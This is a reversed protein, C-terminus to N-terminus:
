LNTFWRFSLYKPFITTKETGVDKLNPGKLILDQIQVSTLAYDFYRLQSIYGEFGSNHNININGYNQKPLSSLIHRKTVIGNVYVDMTKQVVRIAVHIWKDTPINDIEVMENIEDFTNMVVLLKNSDSDLYLGPSNQIYIGNKNILNNYKDFNNNNLDITNGKNFIHKYDSDQRSWTNDEIFLWTSWTFELGDDENNSRYIQISNKNSPDQQVSRSTSGSQKGKIIVPSKNQSMILYILRTSIKLFLVFLLVVLILFSVKAVLSNSYLFDSTGQVYTNNRFKDLSHKIDDGIKNIGAGMDFMPNRYNQSFNSYSM